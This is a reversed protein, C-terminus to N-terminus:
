IRKEYHQREKKTATRASILRITEDRYAYVITLVRGLADCGTAVFREEDESDTDPQSLAHSDYLVAEADSFFVRHKLYNAKAKKPDWHVDM